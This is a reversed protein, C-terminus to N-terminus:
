WSTSGAVKQKRKWDLFQLSHLRVTGYDTADDLIKQKEKDNEADSREVTLRIWEGDCRRYFPTSRSGAYDLGYQDRGSPPVTADYIANMKELEARQGTKRLLFCCKAFNQAFPEGGARHKQIARAIRLAINAARDSDGLELYLAARGLAISAFEPKNFQESKNLCRLAARRDGSLYRLEAIKEWAESQEFSSNKEVSQVIRLRQIIFKEAEPYMKRAAYFDVLMQLASDVESDLNGNAKKNQQLYTLLEPEANDTYAEPALSCLGYANRGYVINSNLPKVIVEQLEELKSAETLQGCDRLASIYSARLNMNRKSAAGWAWSAIEFAKRLEDRRKERNASAGAVTAATEHVSALLPNKPGVCKVLCRELLSVLHSFDTLRRRQVLSQCTQVLVELIFQSRGIRSIDWLRVAPTNRPESLHPDSSLQTLVELVLKMAKEDQGHNLLSLAKTAEISLEGSRSLSGGIAAEQNSEPANSPTSSDLSNERKLIRKYSEVVESPNAGCVSGDNLRRLTLPSDIETIENTSPSVMALDKRREDQASVPAGFCIQDLLLCVSLFAFLVLRPLKM